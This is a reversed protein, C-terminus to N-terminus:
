KRSENWGLSNELEEGTLKAVRSFFDTSSM